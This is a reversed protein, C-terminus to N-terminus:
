LQIYEYLEYLALIILQIMTFYDLIKPVHLCANTSIFISVTRASLATHLPILASSVPLHAIKANKRKIMGTTGWRVTVLASRGMYIINIGMM